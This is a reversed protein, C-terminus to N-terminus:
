AVLEEIGIESFRRSRDRVKQNIREGPVRSLTFGILSETLLLGALSKQIGELSNAWDEPSRVQYKARIYRWYTRGDGTRITLRYFRNPGHRLRPQEETTM